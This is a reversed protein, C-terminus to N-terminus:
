CAASGTEISRLALWIASANRQNRVSLAYAFLQRAEVSLVGSMPAKRSAGAPNAGIKRMVNLAIALLRRGYVRLRKARLSGLIFVRCARMKDHGAFMMADSLEKQARTQYGANPLDPLRYALPDSM